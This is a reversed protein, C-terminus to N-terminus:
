AVNSYCRLFVRREVIVDLVAKRGDLFGVSQGDHHHVLAVNAGLGGRIARRDTLELVLVDVMEGLESYRARHGSM